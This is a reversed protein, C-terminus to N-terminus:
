GNTEQDGMNMVKVSIGEELYSPNRSVILDDIELGDRIEVTEVGLIGTEIEKLTVIYLDTEEAEEEQLLAVYKKGNRLFYSEIPISPVQEKKEVEIFVSCSAGIRALGEPDDRITIIVECVRSDGIKRIIPAISSVEGYITEGIFSDSEIRVPQGTRLYSLDVEDINTVVELASDDHITAVVSGTSLVGGEEANMETVVGSTIARIEYYELTDFVTKLNSEAEIVEASDRVILEDAKSPTNRADDLPRDERFNLQERASSLNQEALSLADQKQRLEEDSASGIKHLEVSREHDRKAKDYNSIAQSYSTRLTLLEKRVGMKAIELAAEAKLKQSDLDKKEISVLLEGEMVRDGTEVHIIEINGNTRATAKSDQVSRIEGNASVERNFDEMGVTVSAVEQQTNRNRTLIGVAVLGVIAVIVIVPILKKIM